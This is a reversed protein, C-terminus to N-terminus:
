AQIIFLQNYWTIIAEHMTKSSYFRNKGKPTLDENLRYISYPDYVEFYLGENSRVYGKILLGHGTVQNYFAETREYANENYPIKSMDLIVLVVHSQDIAQVIQDENTYTLMEYTVAENDFFDMVDRAYFWGGHPHYHDRITEVSVGYTEDKWKLAMVMSAPICNNLGHTGTSAQDIYYDYSKEVSVYEYIYEGLGYTLSNQRIELYKGEYLSLDYEPYPSIPGPPTKQCGLLGMMLTVFVVWILLRKM